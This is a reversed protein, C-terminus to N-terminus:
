KRIAEQMEWKAVKGESWTTVQQVNTAKSIVMNVVHQKEKSKVPCQSNYHGEQRCYYCYIKWGGISEGKEESTPPIVPAM